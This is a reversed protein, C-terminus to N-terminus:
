SARVGRLQPKSWGSLRKRGSRLGVTAIRMHARVVEIPQDGDVRDLVGRAAYHEIVPLTERLYVDVRNKVVEPRDDARQSLRAGCSGCTGTAPPPSFREHYTVQCTACFWRGTLREVLADREVDLSLALTVQGGATALRTDLAEAQARTRPFGDLLAMRSADSAALRDMVMEVVLEDPVLDGRDMCAQAAWGLPTGRRRHDRLLDGSAIHPIGLAESLFRAQTGKGAGPAGLLVVIQQRGHDDGRAGDADEVMLRGSGVEIGM